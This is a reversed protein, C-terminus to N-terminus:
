GFGALRRGARQRHVGAAGQCPQQGGTSHWRCRRRGSGNCRAVAASWTSGNTVTGQCTPWTLSPQHNATCCYYMCGAAAVQLAADVAPAWQDLSCLTAIREPWGLQRALRVGTTLSPWIFSWQTTVNVFGHGSPTAASNISLVGPLGIGSPCLLALRGMQPCLASHFVTQQGSQTGFGLSRGVLPEGLQVLEQVQDAAARLLAGTVVSDADNCPLTM